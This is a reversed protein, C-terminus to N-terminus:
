PTADGRKRSPLRWHWSRGSQQAVVGCAAKAREITRWAFGDATAQSKIEGVPLVRGGGLLGKLWSVADGLAGGEAAANLLQDAALPSAGLWEMTPAGNPGEVIRLSLSGPMRTLSAKTAAFVLQGPVAPDGALLYAARALAPIAVSGGGARYLAPGRSSAGQKTPHRLAVVAINLEGCLLLLDALRDRTKSDGGSTDILGALPDLVLLRAQTKRLLKELEDLDDPLRPHKGNTNRTWLIVRDPDGGAAELRARLTGPDDENAVMVATIPGANATGDPWAAGRSAAALLSSVLTTKGTGPLADLLTLRGVPVRGPWVWSVPATSAQSLRLTPKSSM